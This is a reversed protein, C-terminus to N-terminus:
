FHHPGQVGFTLFCKGYTKSMARFAEVQGSTPMQLANGVFPLPKPGPPLHTEAKAGFVWRAAYYAAGLAGVVLAVDSLSSSQLPDATFSM